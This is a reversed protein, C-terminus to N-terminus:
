RYLRPAYRVIDLYEWVGYLYSGLRSDERTREGLETRVEKGTAVDLLMMDAFGLTEGVKKCHSQIEVETEVPVWSLVTTNLSVSVGPRHRGDASVFAWSSVEDFWATVAGADLLRHNNNYNDCLHSPVRLRLRVQPGPGIKLAEVNQLETANPEIDRRLLVGSFASKSVAHLLELM